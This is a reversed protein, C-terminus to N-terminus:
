LSMYNTVIIAIIGSSEEGGWFVSAQLYPALASGLYIYLVTYASALTEMIKLGNDCILVPSAM